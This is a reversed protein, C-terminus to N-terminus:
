SYIRHHVVISWCQSKERFNSDLMWTAWSANQRKPRANPSWSGQIAIRLLVNGLNPPECPIPTPAAPAPTENTPYCKPFRNGSIGIWNRGVYMLQSATIRGHKGPLHVLNNCSHPLLEDETEATWISEWSCTAAPSQASWQHGTLSASPFWNLVRSALLVMLQDASWSIMAWLQWLEFSQWDRVQVTRQAIFHPHQGSTLCQNANALSDKSHYCFQPVMRM